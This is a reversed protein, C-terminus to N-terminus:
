ATLRYLSPYVYSRIEDGISGGGWIYLEVQLWTPM